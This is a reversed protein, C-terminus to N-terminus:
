SCVARLLEQTSLFSSLPSCYPRAPKYTNACHYLYIAGNHDSQTADTEPSMAYYLKIDRNIDVFQIGLRKSVKEAIPDYMTCNIFPDYIKKLNSGRYLIKTGPSSTTQLRVLFAELQNEWTTAYAEDTPLIKNDTRRGCDHANHNAIIVKSDKLFPNIENWFQDTLSGVGGHDSGISTAGSFRHRLLITDNVSISFRRHNPNYRVTVPIKVTGGKLVVTNAENTNHGARPQTTGALFYTNIEETTNVGSLFIYVDHAPESGTESDGLM